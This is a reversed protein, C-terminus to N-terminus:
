QPYKKAFRNCLDNIEDKKALIEIWDPPISEFGYYVGALGGTIAATTDTDEGLNVAQLVSEEIVMSGFSVGCPLRWAICYM